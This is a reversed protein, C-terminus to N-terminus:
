IEVDAQMCTPGCLAGNPQNAELTYPVDLREFVPIGSRTVTVSIAGDILEGDMLPLSLSWVGDRESFYVRLDDCESDGGRVHGAADATVTCVHTDFDTSVAVTFRGAGFTGGEGLSVHIQHRCGALTCCGGLTAGVVFVLVQMIRNM